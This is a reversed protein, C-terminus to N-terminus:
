WPYNFMITTQHAEDGFAIDARYVFGSASVMRLGLGTSSRSENWLEGKTEAVSGVEHFVAAQFGTAIDKWIWFDFPVVSTAFNWRFETALYATHAGKFRGMPYARLKDDGGLSSATGYTRETIYKDILNQESETCASYSTCNLHLEQIIHDPDTDGEDSVVAESTQYNFAWTHDEGIPIYASIGLNIVYYDAVSDDTRPSNVREAHFRVGKLPDQRDDTLDILVTLATQTGKEADPNDMEILLDGDEDLVKDMTIEELDYEYIIEFQREFLSLTAQFSRATRKKASLIQYEDEGEMMGRYKYSNVQASMDAVFIDIFLTEDILHFDMLGGFVGKIDGTAYMIFADTYSDFMNAGLGTVMVGEGIGPLSYPMPLILYATDSSFQPKRREVALAAEYM